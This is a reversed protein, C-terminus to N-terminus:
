QNRGRQAGDHIAMRGAPTFSRVNAYPRARFGQLEFAAYGSATRRRALWADVQGPLQWSDQAVVGALLVRQGAIETVSGILRPDSGFLERWAEQSLYLRATYPGNSPDATYAPIPLNLVKFFNDSARGISLEAGRHRAIHVRKCYRNIFPSVPLCGAPARRGHNMIASISPQSQAGSYGGTSITVLGDANRYPTSRIAKYAGPLSLCILLSIATWIALRFPVVRRLAPVCSGALYRAASQEMSALLRGPFCWPLLETVERGGRFGGHASAITRSGYM